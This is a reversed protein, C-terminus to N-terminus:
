VEVGTHKFELGDETLTYTQNDDDTSDVVLLWFPSEDFSYTVSNPTFFLVAHMFGTLLLADTSEIVTKSM